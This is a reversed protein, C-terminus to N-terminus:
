VSDPDLGLERLKAALRRAKAEAEEAKAVAQDAKAVAQDAKAVAQDAKAEAEEARDIAGQAAEEAEHARGEAKEVLGNAEVIMGLPTDWLKGDPGFVEVIQDRTVFRVGLLPSVFDVMDDYTILELKDGVRRWGELYMEGDPELVYYEEVGHREYFEQKKHMEGSRNSPSLVEFIVQPFINGEDWVRYSGRQGKPRGFAIYVDPALRIKNNGEVPYIFNDGAVFVDVRDRFLVDINWKLLSIWDFQVTNEAMPLGDSEPYVIRIGSSM